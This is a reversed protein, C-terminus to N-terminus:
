NVSVIEIEFTLPSYPPINNGAGREGYALASPIVLTLKSGATQGMVGDEWGRILSQQGVVYTLPANRDYSSDFKTGDLLRGTYHMAVTKGAEIKAGNGKKNVIVYLGNENPQVTINNEEIYKKILEPEAEQAEQMNQRFTEEEAQIEEATVIDVLNVEYYLKDGQGARYAPPMNPGYITAMQDADIAFIAKDGKHMMMLGEPLDGEFAGDIVKFMRQPNGINAFLTDDNFRMLVEAVLVDGMQVQQEGKNQQEFKYHLGSKTKTYGPLDSKPGCAVVTLAAIAMLIASKFQKKM